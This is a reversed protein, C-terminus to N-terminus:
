GNGLLESKKGTINEGTKRDFAYWELDATAKEVSEQAEPSQGRMRELKTMVARENM